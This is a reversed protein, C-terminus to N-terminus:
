RGGMMYPPLPNMYLPKPREDPTKSPQAAAPAPARSSPMGFEHLREGFPREDRETPPKYGEPRLHEYAPASLRRAEEAKMLLAQQEIDGPRLYSNSLRSSFMRGIHTFPNYSDTAAEEQRLANLRERLEALRKSDAQTGQSELKQIDNLLLAGRRAALHRESKGLDDRAKGAEYAGAQIAGVNDGFNDVNDLLYAGFDALGTQAYDPRHMTKSKFRDMKEEHPKAVGQYVDYATYAASARGLMGPSRILGKLLGPSKASVAAAAAPLAPLAKRVAANYLKYGGAHWAASLPLGIQAAYRLQGGPSLYGKAVDGAMAVVPDHEALDTSRLYALVEHDPIRTPDVLGKDRVYADMMAQNPGNKLLGELEGITAKAQAADEPSLQGSDLAERTRALMEEPSESHGLRSWAHRIAEDKVGAFAAGGPVYGQRQAALNFRAQDYMKRRVFGAPINDLSEASEVGFEKGWAQRAKDFAPHGPKWGLEDVLAKMAYDQAPITPTNDPAASTAAAPAAVNTPGSLYLSNQGPPPFYGQPQAPIQGPMAPFLPGGPHGQPLAHAGPGVPLTGGQYHTEPRRVLGNRSNLGLLTNMADADLGYGLQLLNRAAGANQYNGTVSASGHGQYGDHFANPNQGPGITPAEQGSSWGASGQAWAPTPTPPPAAPQAPKAPQAPATTSAPKAPQAPKPPTPGSEARKNMLASLKFLGSWSFGKRKEEENRPLRPAQPAPAVGSAVAPPRPPPRDVPAGEVPKLGPAPAQVPGGSRGFGVGKILGPVFSTGAADSVAGHHVADLLSAKLGSGYMRTVWDPDHQLNDMGRVMYAQFPPPDRHVPVQTVGFEELDRIVSPRVKTGVTYHLVPRELYMGKARRVGLMEHGERPKWSRELAVYPVTDGEVYDGWEENLRVHNILGRAVLEVNRRDSKMGADRMSNRFAYAFYRRGEGIGKHEVVKAHDPIGESIVDGAEVEDGVKVKLTFGQGVYHQKGGITVFSGGAAAPAIKEVRGDVDSHAAGGRMNRPVQIQQDIAKFGSVAKEQGAVGGSHKASNSVVLGNALVFLHSSDEVEIDYTRRVGAPEWSYAVADRRTSTSDPMRCLYAYFARRNFLDVGCRTACSIAESLPRKRWDARVQEERGAADHQVEYRLGMIQHDATAVLVPDDTPERGDHPESGFAIARFKVAVCERPGNDYVRVVRTPRSNNFTLATLVTDGVAVDEIPKESGDAMRVLTGEALCLQGQALPESLSQAATLGVVEGRGPLVGRERVGVDRAFVGGDRSGGVIPSRVVIRKKKLRELHKLIKPTLVTNRKYPGVDQALLAGENDPDDVDVPMGRLLKAAEAREEEDRDDTEDDDEDDGVVVLRHALQNLQKSLYGADRTAFKTAVVGRRAGYTGAFYEAPTLGESYSRLVPVPIVNEHQDSYLLDSGRLSSLNMKNGRSGSLVQRALPNDEALSEDYVDKMQREMAAGVKRVILDNRKEDTLRDDDLIRRLDKRLGDAILRSAKAKRMHALGFSDGGVRTAAERGLDALRKSIEVYRDPHQRAVARLLDNLGKKDLVRGYDRLEDPLTENVLLSGITTNLAM